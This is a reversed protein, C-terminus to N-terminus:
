TLVRRAAGVTPATIDATVERRSGVEDIESFAAM